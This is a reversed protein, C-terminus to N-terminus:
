IVSKNADRRKGATLYDRPSESCRLGPPYSSCYQHRKELACRSSKRLRNEIYAPQCVADELHVDEGSEGFYLGSDPCSCSRSTGSPVPLVPYRSPHVRQILSCAGAKPEGPRREGKTQKETRRLFKLYDALPRQSTRVRATWALDPLLRYQCVGM